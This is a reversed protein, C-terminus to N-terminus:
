GQYRMVSKDNKEDVNFASNAAQGAPLGAPVATAAFFSNGNVQPGAVTSATSPNLKSEIFAFSFKTPLENANEFVHLRKELPKIKSGIFKEVIAKFIRNYEENENFLNVVSILFWTLYSVKNYICFSTIHPISEKEDMYEFAPSVFKKMMALVDKPINVVQTQPSKNEYKKVIDAVVDTFYLILYDLIRSTNKSYDKSLGALQSDVTIADSELLKRYADKLNRLRNNVEDSTTTTPM